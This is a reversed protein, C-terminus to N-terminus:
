IGEKYRKILKYYDRAVRSHETAIIAKVRWVAEALDNNIVYYDYRDIQSIEKLAAGMRLDIMEKTESGRGTIRERQESLSPPLIFILVVDPYKEKIQAAGQVDIELVVDVGEALKDLVKQKPTGYYNGYVKAYELFGGTEITREFEEISIFYYSVGEAEGPRAERTTMSVSSFAKAEDLVMRCVTGKGTGSPGSIVFLRGENM